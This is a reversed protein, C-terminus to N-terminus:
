TSRLGELLEKPFGVTVLEGRRASKMARITKANPVLLKIPSTMEKAVRM